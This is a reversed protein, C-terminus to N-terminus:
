FYVIPFQFLFTDSFGILTFKSSALFKTTNKLSTKSVRKEAMWILFHISFRWGNLKLVLLTLEILKDTIDEQLSFTDSLVCAHATVNLITFPMPKLVNGGRVCKRESIIHGQFTRM